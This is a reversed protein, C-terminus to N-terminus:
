VLLLTYSCFTEPYTTSVFYKPALDFSAEHLLSGDADPGNRNQDSM